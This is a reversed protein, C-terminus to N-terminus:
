PIDFEKPIMATVIHNPNSGSVVVFPKGPLQTARVQITDRVPDYKVKNGNELIYDLANLTTPPRGPGSGAVREAAHNSLTRGHPTILSPIHFNEQQRFAWNSSYPVPLRSAAGAADDSGAKIAAAGLTASSGVVASGGSAGGTAMEAIEAACVPATALCGEGVAVAVPAAVVAAALGVVVGLVVKQWTALKPRDIWDDSVNPDYNPNTGMAWGHFVAEKKEPKPDPGKKFVVQASRHGGDTRVTVTMTGSGTGGGAKQYQFTQTYTKTSHYVLNGSPDITLYDRYFGGKGDSCGQECGSIPRLGTPDSKTVPTNNAYAYGNLSEHDDPALVPDVSLFRGTAPDYERAGIHTLGTDADAPKGLFGKDDPWASPTAGRTEGFPKTYRRTIAQTTADVTMSATGHHDDVM